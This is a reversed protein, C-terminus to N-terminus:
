YAEITLMTNEFRPAPAAAINVADRVNRIGTMLNRFALYILFIALPVLIGAAILTAATEGM